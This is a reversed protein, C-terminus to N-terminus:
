TAKRAQRALYRHDLAQRVMTKIVAQRSINLERAVEDLESLFPETLDVDVQQIAPMMRGRNTFFESVDQGREAQRAISEASIPRKARPVKKM